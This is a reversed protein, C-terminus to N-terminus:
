FGVYSGANNLALNGEYGRPLEFSGLGYNKIIGPWINGGVPAPFQTPHVHISTIDATHAVLLTVRFTDPGDDGLAVKAPNTPTPPLDLAGGQAVGLHLKLRNAVETPIPEEYSAAALSAFMGLAAIFSVMVCYQDPVRQPISIYKSILHLSKIILSDLTKICKQKIYPFM